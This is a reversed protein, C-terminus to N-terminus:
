EIAPSPDPAPAPADPSTISSAPPFSGDSVDEGDVYIRGDELRLDIREALEALGDDDNWDM